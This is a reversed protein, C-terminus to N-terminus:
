ISDLEVSDFAVGGPSVVSVHVEGRRGWGDVLRDVGEGEGCKQVYICLFPPCVILQNNYTTLRFYLTNYEVESCSTSCCTFQIISCCQRRMTMAM